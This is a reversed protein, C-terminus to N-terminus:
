KEEVGAAFDTGTIVSSMWDNLKTGDVEVSSLPSDDLWVHSSGPVWYYSWSPLGSLTSTALDDLGEAFVAEPLPLTDGGYFFGMFNRIVNDARSSIVGFRSNPYLTALCGHVEHATGVGVGECGPPLNDFTRWADQMTAQQMEETFYSNRLVPGSDNILHVDTGSPFASAVHHFNVTAGYAGASSGAILVTDPEPFTPVIRRLYATVNDYGVYDVGGPGGPNTGTHVDGTCYPIFVFNWDRVPNDADSRDFLGLATGAALDSEGFGDLNAALKLTNCSVNDWCAGGGQFYVVVNDSGSAPNVGIGATTGRACFANEFPVWTWQSDPATIPEDSGVAGSSGGSGGGGAAGGTGASGGVGSSGSTGGAGGSGGSDDDSGGCGTALVLTLVSTWAGAFRLLM